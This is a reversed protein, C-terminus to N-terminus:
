GSRGTDRAGTKVDKKLKSPPLVNSERFAGERLAGESTPLTDVLGGYTDRWHDRVRELDLPPLSAGVLPPQLGELSQLAQAAREYTERYKVAQQAVREEMVVWPVAVRETGVARLTRLFDASSDGLSIGRLICTDLIIM